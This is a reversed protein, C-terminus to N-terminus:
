FTNGKFIM